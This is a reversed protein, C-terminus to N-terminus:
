LKSSSGEKKEEGEKIIVEVEKKPKVIVGSSPREGHSRMIIVNREHMLPADEIEIVIRKGGKRDKISYSKVREMPIDGIIDSLTQGDGRPSIVRVGHEPYRGYWMFDDLIDPTCPVKPFDKLDPVDFDYDYDFGGKKDHWRFCPIEGEDSMIIIKKKLSDMKGEIDSVDIQLEIEKMMDEADKLRLEFEKMAKECAEKGKNDSFSFVTDITITKGDKGTSVKMKIVAKGESAKITDQGKLKRSTGTIFIFIFALVWLFINMSTGTKMTM